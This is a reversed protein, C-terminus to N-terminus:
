PVHTQGYSGDLHVLNPGTGTCLAGLFDAGHVSWLAGGPRSLGCWSTYAMSARWMPVHSTGLIPWSRVDRLESPCTWTRSPLRPCSSSSCQANRIREQPVLLVVPVDIQKVTPLQSRELCWSDGGCDRRFMSSRRLTRVLLVLPWTMRATASEVETATWRRPIEAFMELCKTVALGQVAVTDRSLHESSSGRFRRGLGFWEPILEDCDDMFFAVFYLVLFELQDEESFHLVLLFSTARGAYVVIQLVVRVVRLWHGPSHGDYCRSLVALTAVYMAPVCFPLFTVEDEHYKEEAEAEEAEKEEEEQVYLFFILLWTRVLTHRWAPPELLLDQWIRGGARGVGWGGAGSGSGEGDGGEAEGGGEGEGGRGPM